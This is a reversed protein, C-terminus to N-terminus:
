LAQKLLSGNGVLSLEQTLHNFASFTCGSDYWEEFIEVLEPDFVPSQKNAAAVRPIGGCYKLNLGLDFIYENGFRHTQSKIEKFSTQLLRTVEKILEM